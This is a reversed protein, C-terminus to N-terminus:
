STPSDSAALNYLEALTKLKFNTLMNSEEFLIFVERRPPKKQAIIMALLM